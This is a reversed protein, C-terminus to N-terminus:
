EPTQWQKGMGSRWSDKWKWGLSTKLLQVLFKVAGTHYNFYLLISLWKICTVSLVCCTSVPNDFSSHKYFLLSGSLQSTISHFIRWRFELFCSPVGTFFYQNIQGLCLAFPLQNIECYYRTITWRWPFAVWMDLSHCLPKSLWSVRVSLASFRLGLLCGSSIFKTRPKM